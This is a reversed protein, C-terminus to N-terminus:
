LEYGNKFIVSRVSWVLAVVAIPLIFQLYGITVSAIDGPIQYALGAVLTIVYMTVKVPDKDVPYFCHQVLAALLGYLMMGIAVGFLHFNMFLEGLLTLREGIRLFDHGLFEKIIVQAPKITDKQPFLARPIPTTLIPLITRGMQLELQQPVIEITKAYNDFEVAAELLLVNVVSWEAESWQQSRLYGAVSALLVLMMFIVILKKIGIRTRMYHYSILSLVVFTLFLGRYMNLIILCATTVYLIFVILKLRTQIKGKTSLYCNVILLTLPVISLAIFEYYGKGAMLETKTEKYYDGILIPIGGGSKWFLMNMCLFFGLTFLAGYFLSAQNWRGRLAPPSSVKKGFFISGLFYGSYFFIIGAVSLLIVPNIMEDPVVNALLSLKSRLMYFSPGLGFYIFYILPIFVITSFIDFSNNKLNYLLPAICLIFLVMILMESVLVRPEIHSLSYGIVISVFLIVYGAKRFFQTEERDINPRM